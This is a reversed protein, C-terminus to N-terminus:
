FYWALFDDLRYLNHMKEFYFWLISHAESCGVEGPENPEYEVVSDPHISNRLLWLFYDVDMVASGTAYREVACPPEQKWENIMSERNLEPLALVERWQVRM